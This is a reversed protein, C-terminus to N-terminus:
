SSFLTLGSFAGKWNLASSDASKNMGPINLFSEVYDRYDKLTNDRLQFIDM